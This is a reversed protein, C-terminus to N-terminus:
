LAADPWNQLLDYKCLYDLRRLLETKCWDSTTSDNICNLLDAAHKILGSKENRRADANCKYEVLTFVGSRTKNMSRTVM